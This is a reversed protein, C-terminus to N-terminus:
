MQNAFVKMSEVFETNDMQGKYKLHAGGAFLGLGSVAVAAAPLLGLGSVGIVVSAGLVCVALNLMLKGLLQMTKSPKKAISNAFKIYEEKGDPSSTSVFANTKKLVEILTAKPVKEDFLSGKLIAEDSIQKICLKLIQDIAKKKNNDTCAKKTDALKLLFPSLSQLDKQAENSFYNPTSSVFLKKDNCIKQYTVAAALKIIGFISIRNNELNLTLGEPANESRLAEAFSKAGKDGIENFSLRLTLGKPAKGSQLAAALKKAGKDDIKYGSLNITLGEPANGSVITQIASELPM